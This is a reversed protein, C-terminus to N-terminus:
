GASKRDRAAPFLGPDDLSRVADRRCAIGLRVRPRRHLARPAQECLHILEGADRGVPLNARYSRGLHSHLLDSSCVDSSWDSIRMDYATKQMFVFFVFFLM